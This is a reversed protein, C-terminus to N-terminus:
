SVHKLKGGIKQWSGSGDAKRRYIDDISNVGWVEEDGVDIQKLKGGIQVWNNNTCPNACMYIDDNPAIAWM